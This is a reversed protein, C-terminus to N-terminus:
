ASPATDSRRAISSPCPFILAESGSFGDGLPAFSHAVLDPVAIGTLESLDWVTDPDLQLIRRWSLGMDQSFDQAHCSGNKAALASVFSPLTEGPLIPLRLGLRM